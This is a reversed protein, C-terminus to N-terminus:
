FYPYYCQSTGALEDCVECVGEVGVCSFCKELQDMKFINPPTMDVICLGGSRGIFVILLLAMGVLTVNVVVGVLHYRLTVRDATQTQRLTRRERLLKLERVKTLNVDEKSIDTEDHFDDEFSQGSVDSSSSASHSEVDEEDMNLGSDRSLTRKFEMLARTSKKNKKKRQDRFPNLDTECKALRKERDNYQRIHLRYTAFELLVATAEITWMIAAELISDNFFVAFTILFGVLPNLLNFPVGNRVVPFIEAFILGVYVYTTVRIAVNWDIKGAMDLVPDGCCTSVGDYTTISVMAATFDMILAAWTMIRIWKKIPKEHRHPPMLRVYRLWQKWFPEDDLIKDQTLVSRNSSFQNRLLGGTRLDKTTRSMPAYDDDFLDDGDGNIDDINDDNNDENNDDDDDDDNDVKDKIRTSNKPAISVSVSKTLSGDINVRTSTSGRPIRRGEGRISDKLISQPKLASAKPQEPACEADVEAQADGSDTTSGAPPSAGGSGSGPRFSTPNKQQGPRFSQPRTTSGLSDASHSQSRNANMQMMSNPRAPARTVSNARQPNNGGATPGGPRANMQMM